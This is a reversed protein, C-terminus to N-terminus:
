EQTLQILKRDIRERARLLAAREEEPSEVFDVIKEVAARVTM